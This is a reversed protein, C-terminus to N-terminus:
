RGNRVFAEECEKTSQKETLKKFTCHRLIGQNQRKKWLPMKEKTQANMGLEEIRSDLAGSIYADTISRGTLVDAQMIGVVTLMSGTLLVSTFIKM